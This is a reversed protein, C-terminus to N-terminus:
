KAPVVSLGYLTESAQYTWESKFKTVAENGQNIVLRGLARRVRVQKEMPEGVRQARLLWLQAANIAWPYWMFGLAERAVYNQGKQDTFRASFEGSDNPFNLNRDGCKALYDPMQELIKPPIMFGTEAEARLLEGYIQLTLGDITEGGTESAARWGPPSGNPDYQDALWRAAGKLLQDRTQTSGDWTLNAKHVELLALLALTTTYVNHLSPDDQNPFM